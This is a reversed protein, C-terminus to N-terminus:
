CPSRDYGESAQLKLKNNSIPFHWDFFLMGKVRRKWNVGIAERDKKKRCLLRFVFRDNMYQQLRDTSMFHFCAIKKSKKKEMLVFEHSILETIITMALTDIYFVLM